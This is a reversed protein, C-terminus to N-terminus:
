TSRSRALSDLAYNPVLDRISTKISPRRGSPLTTRGIVTGDERRKSQGQAIRQKAPSVAKTSSLSGSSFPSDVSQWDNAGDEQPLAPSGFSNSSDSSDMYIAPAQKTAKADTRKYPKTARSLGRATPRDTTNNLNKGLAFTSPLDRVNTRQRENEDKFAQLKVNRRQLKENQAQLQEIKRLAEAVRKQSEKREEEQSKQLETIVANRQRAEDELRQIKKAFEQTQLKPLDQLPDRSALEKRQQECQKELEEIRRELSKTKGSKEQHDACSEMRALVAEQRQLIQSQQGAEGGAGSKGSTVLKGLMFQIHSIGKVVLPFQDVLEQFGPRPATMAVVGGSSSDGAMEASGAEATMATIDEAPTVRPLYPVELPSPTRERVVEEGVTELVSKFRKAQPDDAALDKPLPTDMKGGEEMIEKWILQTAKRRKRGRPKLVPIRPAEDENNDVKNDESPAAAVAEEENKSSSPEEEAAPEEEIPRGNHDLGPWVPKPPVRDLPRRKGATGVRKKPEIWPMNGNNQQQQTEFFENSVLLPRSNSLIFKVSESTSFSPKSTPLDEIDNSQSSSFASGM